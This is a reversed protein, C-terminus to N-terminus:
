KSASLALVQTATQVSGRARRKVLVWAAIFALSESIAISWVAGGIGWFMTLPIGAAVAVCHIAMLAKLANSLRQGFIGLTLQKYQERLHHRQDAILARQDDLFADAKDRSAGGFALTM